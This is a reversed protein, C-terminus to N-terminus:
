DRQPRSEGRGWGSQLGQLIRAPDLPRKSEIIWVASEGGMLSCYAKSGSPPPPMEVNRKYLRVSAEDPVVLAHQRWHRVLSATWLYAKRQGPEVLLAAGAEVLPKFYVEGGSDAPHIDTAVNVYDGASWPAPRALTPSIGDDDVGFAFGGREALRTSKVELAGYRL